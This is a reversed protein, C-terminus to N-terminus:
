WVALSIARVSFVLPLSTMNSEAKGEPLVGPCKSILHSNLMVPCVGGGSVFSFCYKFGKSCCPSSIWRLKMSNGPLRKSMKVAELFSQNLIKYFPLSNTKFM